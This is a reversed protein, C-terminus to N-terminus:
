RAAPDGPRVGGLLAAVLTQLTQEMARLRSEVDSPTPGPLERVVPQEDVADRVSVHVTMAASSAPIGTVAVSTPSGAYSKSNPTSTDTFSANDSSGPFPDGGDGHNANTELHRAGDAQMLAVKYHSENRNSSIAEDIHWILLGQGPLSADYGDQQRNEILFYEHRGGRGEM